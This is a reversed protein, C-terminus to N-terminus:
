QDTELYGYGATEISTLRDGEFRLRRMLKRPGFNYVLEMVALEHPFGFQPHLYEVSGPYPRGTVRYARLVYGIHRVSVPEGCIARVAAETMGDKVLRTGCRLAHAPDSSILLLTAIALSSTFVRTTAMMPGIIPAATARFRRGGIISWVCWCLRRDQSTKTIPLLNPGRYLGGICAM